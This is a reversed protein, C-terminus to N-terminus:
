PKVKAPKAENGAPATTKAALQERLSRIENVAANERPSLSAKGSLLETILDEHLSM